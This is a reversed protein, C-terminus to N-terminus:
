QVVAITDAQTYFPIKVSVKAGGTDPTALALKQASGYLQELREQTNRLGIGKHMLGKVNIANLGPGNDQVEM